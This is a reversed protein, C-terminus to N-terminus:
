TTWDAINEEFEVFISCTNDFINYLQVYVYSYIRTRTYMYM